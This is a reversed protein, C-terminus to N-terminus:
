EVSRPIMAVGSSAPSRTRPVTAGPPMGIATACGVAVFSVKLSLIVIEVLNSDLALIMTIASGFAGFIDSM